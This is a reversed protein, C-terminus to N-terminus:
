GDVPTRGGLVYRGGYPMVIVDGKSAWHRVGDDVSVWCDGSAVIHFLILRDDRPTLAGAFALPESEFAFEDSLEARFFIAGQLRLQELTSNLVATPVTETADTVDAGIAPETNRSDSATTRDHAARPKSLLSPPVVIEDFFSPCSEM